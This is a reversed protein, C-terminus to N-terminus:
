TKWASTGPIRIGANNIVIDIGDPHQKKLFDRFDRINQSQTIDLAHYTITTDGGDEALVKAKKLQSDNYLERVAEVGREPSRATLYITLPGSRLPSKPYSLALNRVTTSDAPKVNSLVRHYLKPRGIAFGIGKNAGTVAAIRGEVMM